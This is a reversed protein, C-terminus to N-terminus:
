PIFLWASQRKALAPGHAWGRPDWDWLGPYLCGKTM